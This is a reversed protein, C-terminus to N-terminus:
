LQIDLKLLRRQWGVLYVLVGALIILFMVGAITAGMTPNGLQLQYGFFTRYFFTGLLDTSFNPPALAGQAAYVLDFANFNGVFTLIGVIGVTPLILPFRVQWFVDWATAGDVRAAETLEDPISVLAALFLIMPVGVWQWVSILSIAPLATEPLGLWPQGEVGLVGLIDNAIGWVPNLILRWIFGILVVSLVTPTFILTRYLARGKIIRSSLLTALLLGLPNQVAMHVIFFFVNNKIAGWLRPAYNENTFLTVYNNLGVFVEQNNENEAYLSLRLSDVLPYIMFLTYIIVAPALFVVIHVPFPKRRRAEVSVQRTSAVLTEQQSQV